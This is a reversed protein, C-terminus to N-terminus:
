TSLTEWKVGFRVVMVMSFAPDVWCMRTLLRLFVLTRIAEQLRRCWLMLLHVGSRRECMISLLVRHTPPGTVRIACVMPYRLVLM